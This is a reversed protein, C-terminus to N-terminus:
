LDFGCRCIATGRWPKQIQSLNSSIVHSFLSVTRYTSFFIKPKKEGVKWRIYVRHYFSEGPQTRLFSNM